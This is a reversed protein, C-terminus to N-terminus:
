LMQLTTVWRKDKAQFDTWWFLNMQNTSCIFYPKLLFNQWKKWLLCSKVLTYSLTHMSKGKIYQVPHYNNPIIFTNQKAANSMALKVHSTGVSTHLGYMICSRHKIHHRLTSWFHAFHTYTRFVWFVSSSITKILIICVYCKPSNMFSESCVCLHWSERERNWEWKSEREPIKQRGCACVCM